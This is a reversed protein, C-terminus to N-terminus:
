PGPLQPGDDELASQRPEAKEPARDGAISNRRRIPEEELDFAKEAKKFIEAEEKQRQRAPKTRYYREQVSSIFEEHTCESMAALGRGAAVPGLDRTLARVEPSKEPNEKVIQLKSWPVNKELREPDIQKTSPDRSLMDLALYEAMLGKSERVLKEVEPSDDDHEFMAQELREQLEEADKRITKLRGGVTNEKLLETVEPGSQPNAKDRLRLEDVLAGGHGELALDRLERDGGNGLAEAFLPSEALTKTGADLTSVAKTPIKKELSGKKYREAHALNRLVTIEAAEKVCAALGNQKKLEAQRQLEEIRDRATPMYRDLLKENTLEGAPLKKLFSKFMDDLGGCHGAGVAAEAKALKQGSGALSHIFRGFLGNEMLERAKDNIQKETLQTNRLRKGSGRKSDALMRAAMIKAYYAAPYDPKGKELEAEQKWGEIWQAASRTPEAPAEPRPQEAVPEAVPQPEPRIAQKPEAEPEPAPQRQERRPAEAAAEPAPLDVALGTAENVRNVMRDFQEKKFGMRKGKELLQQYNQKGGTEAKLFDGFSDLTTLAEIIEEKNKPQYPDVTHLTILAKRYPLFRQGMETGGVSLFLGNLMTVAEGSFRNLENKTNRTKQLNEYLANIEEKSRAM